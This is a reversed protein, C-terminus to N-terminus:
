GFYNVLTENLEQLQKNTSTEGLALGEEKEEQLPEYPTEGIEGLVKEMEIVTSLLEDMDQYHLGSVVEEVRTAVQLSVMKKKTQMQSAAKSLFGKWNTM